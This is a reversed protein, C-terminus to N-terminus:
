HNTLHDLVLYWFYANSALVVTGVVLARYAKWCDQRWEREYRAADRREAAIAQRMWRFYEDRSVECDLLYFREPSVPTAPVHRGILARQAANMAM